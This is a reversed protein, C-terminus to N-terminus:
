HQAKRKIQTFKKKFTEDYIFVSFIYQNYTIFFYQNFAVIKRLHLTNLAFSEKFGLCINFHIHM